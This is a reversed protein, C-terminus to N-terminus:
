GLHKQEPVSYLVKYCLMKMIINKAKLISDARKCSSTWNKLLAYWQIKDHIRFCIKGIESYCILFLHSFLCALIYQLYSVMPSWINQSQTWTINRRQYNALYGGRNLTTPCLHSPESHAAAWNTWMWHVIYTNDAVFRGHQWHLVVQARPLLM